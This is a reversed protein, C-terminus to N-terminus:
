WTGWALNATASVKPTPEPDHVPAQDAIQEEIAKKAKNKAISREIRVVEEPNSEEWAFIAETVERGFESFGTQRMWSLYGPDSVAVETISKGKHKGFRFISEPRMMASM